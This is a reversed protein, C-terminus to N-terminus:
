PRIVDYFHLSDVFDRVDALEEPCYVKVIQVLGQVTARDVRVPRFYFEGGVGMRLKWYGQLVDSDATECVAGGDDGLVRTIQSIDGPPTLGAKEYAAVLEVAKKTAAPTARNADFGAYMAIIVITMAIGVAWYIARQTRQAVPDSPEVEEIPPRDGSALPAFRVDDTM